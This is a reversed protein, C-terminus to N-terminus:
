STICGLEVPFSAGASPVRGAKVRHIEEDQWEGESYGKLFQYVNLTERLEILWEVLTILDLPTATMSVKLKYGFWISTTTFQCNADEQLQCRFHALSCDQPVSGKVHPIQHWRWTFLILISNFQLVYLHWWLSNNQSSFARQMIPVWLHLTKHSYYFGSEYFLFFPTSFFQNKEVCSSSFQSKWIQIHTIWVKYFMFIKIIIKLGWSYQSVRLESYPLLSEPHKPNQKQLYLFSPMACSLERERELFAAKIKNHSNLHVM